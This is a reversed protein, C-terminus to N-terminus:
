PQYKSDPNPIERDRSHFITIVDEVSEVMGSPLSPRAVVKLPLHFTTPVFGQDHPYNDRARVGQCHDTSFFYEGRDMSSHIIVARRM